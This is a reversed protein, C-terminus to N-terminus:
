YKVVVDKIAYKFNKIKEFVDSLFRKFTTIASNADESLLKNLFDPFIQSYRGM